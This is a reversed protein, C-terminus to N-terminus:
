ESHSIELIKCDKSRISIHAVGGFSLLNPDKSFYATGNIHWITDLGMELNVEYPRQDLITEGFQSL